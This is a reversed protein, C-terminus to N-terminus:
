FAPPLAQLSPQQPSPPKAQLKPNFKKMQEHWLKAEESGKQFRAKKPEKKRRHPIHTEVPTEELSALLKMQRIAMDKPQGDRSYKKGPKETNIVRYLDKNPLKRIYYPM